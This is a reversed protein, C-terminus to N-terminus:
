GALAVAAPATYFDIFSYSTLLRRSSRAAHPLSNLGCAQDYELIAVGLLPEWNEYLWSLSADPGALELYNRIFRAKAERLEAEYRDTVNEGIIAKGGFSYLPFGVPM